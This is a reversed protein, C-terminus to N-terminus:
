SPDELRWEALAATLSDIDIRPEAKVQFCSKTKREWVGFTYEPLACVYETFQRKGAVPHLIVSDYIHSIHVPNLASFLIFNSFQKISPSLAKNGSQSVFICSFGDHRGGAWLKNVLESHQVNTGVVDDLILLIRAVHLGQKRRKAQFNIMTRLKAEDYDYICEAVDKYQELCAAIGSMAVVSDFRQSVKLKKALEVILHTKGSTFSSAVAINFPNSGIRNVLEDVKFITSHLPSQMTQTSAKSREKLHYQAPSGDHTFLVLKSPLDPRVGFTVPGTSKSSLEQKRAEARLRRKWKAPQEKAGGQRAIVIM